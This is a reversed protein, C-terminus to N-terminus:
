GPDALSSDAELRAMIDNARLDYGLAELQAQVATLFAASLGGFSGPQQEAPPEPARQQESLREPEQSVEQEQAAQATATGEHLRQHLNPAQPQSTPSQRPSTSTHCCALAAIHTTCQNALTRCYLVHKVQGYM